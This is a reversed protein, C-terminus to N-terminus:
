PIRQAVHRHPVKKIKDFAREVLKAIQDAQESKALDQLDEQNPTHALGRRGAKCSPASRMTWRELQRKDGAPKALQIALGILRGETITALLM